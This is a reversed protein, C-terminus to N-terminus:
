YNIKNYLKDAQESVERYKKKYFFRTHISPSNLSLDYYRKEKRELDKLQKQLEKM